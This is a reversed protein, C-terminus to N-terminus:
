HGVQLPFWVRISGLHEALLLFWVQSQGPAGRAGSSKCLDGRSKEAMVKGTQKGAGHM